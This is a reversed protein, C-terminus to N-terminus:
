LFEFEDWYMLAGCRAKFIMENRSLPYGGGDQEVSAGVYHYAEAGPVYIVKYGLSRAVFCLEVDEYTGKGYIENFPGQTPDGNKQYTELIKKLVDRRIMMCAGTVSQCEKREMVAPNDKGWGIGAHVVNGHLDFCLGAHQVKNAPRHPDLSDQPFLLKPAAVGVAPDTFEAQLALLCGDRLVIDTNLVLVLPANGLKIGNNVTRAFGSNQSNRSVRSNSNLNHYIDDLENQSEPPSADDVIIINVDLKGRTAEISELCNKLLDPRGYVPIVIDLGYEKAPRRKRKAM